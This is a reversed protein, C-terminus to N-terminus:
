LGSQYDGAQPSYSITSAVCTEAVVPYTDFYTHFVPHPVIHDEHDFHPMSSLHIQLPLQINDGLSHNGILQNTGIKNLLSEEGEDNGCFYCVLM